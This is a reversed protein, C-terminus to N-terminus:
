RKRLVAGLQALAADTAPSKPAAALRATLAQLFYSNNQFTKLRDEHPPSDKWVQQDTADLKTLWNRFSNADFDARMVVASVAAALRDQEGYTYILHASSLRRAVAEFLTRQDTASFLPNKALAALLDASHATSHIWGKGPDFGRLDEEANLYELSNALLQHLRPEGLFPTKLDREAIAALGLASFSRRFISDTNSEGLDKRLNSQWENLLFALDDPALLDKRVIWVYLISYSLDDRLEPNPSALNASLERLLTSASEGSPVAYHNKAIDRWFQLDHSLAQNPIAVASAASTLFATLVAFCVCIRKM